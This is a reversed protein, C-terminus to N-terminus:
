HCEALASPTFMRASIGQHLVVATASVNADTVSSQVDWQTDSCPTNTNTGSNIQGYSSQKSSMECAVDTAVNPNLSSGLVPTIADCVPAAVQATYTIATGYLKVQLPTTGTILTQTFPQSVVYEIGEQAVSQAEFQFQENNAVKIDSLSAGVMSTASIMFIMLFIMTTVLTFGRQLRRSAHRSNM